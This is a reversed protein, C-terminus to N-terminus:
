LHRRTTNTLDATNIPHKREDIRASRVYRNCRLRVCVDKVHPDFEDIRHEYKLNVDCM